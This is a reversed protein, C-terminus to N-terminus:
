SLAMTIANEFDRSLINWDYKPATALANKSLRSCLGGDKMVTEIARVWEEPKDDVLIGNWGDEIVDRVGSVNSAVVPKGMAMAEFLKLPSVSHSARTQPYPILVVDALAIYKPVEEPPRLGLYLTTNLQKMQDILDPEGEGLILCRISAPKENLLKLVRLLLRGGINWDIRGAYVCVRADGLGLRQRLADCDAKSVNDPTFRGIDVGDPVYLIKKKHKSEAYRRLFQTHVTVVSNSRRLIIDELTKLTLRVAGQLSRPIRDQVKEYTYESELDNFDVLLKTRTILSLFLGMLGTYVSTNNVIILKPSSRRLGVLARPILYALTLAYAALFTKRWLRLLMDPYGIVIAMMGLHSAESDHISEKRMRSIFLVYSPPLTIFFVKYKSRPLRSVLEYIRRDGGLRPPFYEAIIAIRTKTEAVLRGWM